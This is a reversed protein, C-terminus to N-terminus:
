LMEILFGKMLKGSLPKKDTAWVWMHCATHCPFAHLMRCEVYARTACLLFGYYIFTQWLCVCVAVVLLM